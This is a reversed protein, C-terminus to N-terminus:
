HFDSSWYRRSLRKGDMTLLYFPENKQHHWQIEAVIGARREGGSDVEVADGIRKLPSDVTRFLDPKVRFTCEGYSLVLYDGEEGIVEFLKGNPRIGVVAPVDEPHIMAEGHEPFWPYVGWRTPNRASSIPEM